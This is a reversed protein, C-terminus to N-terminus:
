YFCFPKTLRQQAFQGGTQAHAVQCINTNSSACVPNGVPPVLIKHAEEVNDVSLGVAPDTNVFHDVLKDGDEQDFLNWDDLAVQHFHTSDWRLCPKVVSFFSLGVDRRTPSGLSLFSLHHQVVCSSFRGDGSRRWPLM